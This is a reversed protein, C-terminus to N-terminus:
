HNLTGANIVPTASEDSCLVVLLNSVMAAKKDEDLDIEEAQLKDLALRVMSVAGEVIKERASVVASAQQRRLMAAAIEPAYNLNNIRAEVVEIGAMALRETLKKVLEENIEDGGSRLTIEGSKQDEDLNDYAYQGAVQRLAADSQISVFRELANMRTNVTKTEKEQLDVEFLAKYADKLRWVVVLGILIPNGDKDNVKIPKGDLNRARLTMKKSTLFPNVWYLGNKTLSGRYKGFFLLASMENPELQVFGGIGILTLILLAIAPVCVLAEDIIAGYVIVGVMCVLMVLLVFIMMIGNLKMGQFEFEKTEM